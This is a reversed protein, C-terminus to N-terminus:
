KNNLTLIYWLFNFSPYAEYAIVPAFVLTSAVALRYREYKRAILVCGAAACCLIQPLSWEFLLEIYSGNSLVTLLIHTLILFIWLPISCIVLGAYIWLLRDSIANWNTM